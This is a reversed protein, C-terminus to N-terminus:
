WNTVNPLHPNFFGLPHDVSFFLLQAFRWPNHNEVASTILRARM